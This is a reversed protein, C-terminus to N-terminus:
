VSAWVKRIHDIALRSVDQPGTSLDRWVKTAAALAPNSRGFSEVTLWGDYGGRKLAAFTAEWPIHGEGPVGRDSESVHFHGVHRLHRTLAAVPDKEEINAHFTDYMGTVAPHAIRDLYLALGDLTNFLHSEFRNMPEVAITIGRRAAADGAHVHFDAMRDFEAASPPLGTFEDLTQHVPGVLLSAGLEAVGDLCWEIHRKAAERQGPDDSIPNMGHPMVTLATAELDMAKLVRGLAAYDGPAGGIVPIEIGNYGVSRVAEILPHHPEKTPEIWSLMCFGIKV